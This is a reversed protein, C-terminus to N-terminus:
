SCPTGKRKDLDEKIKKKLMNKNAINLDEM